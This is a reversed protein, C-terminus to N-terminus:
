DRAIRRARRALIDDVPWCNLIQEPVLWARRAAMVGFLMNGLGDASHADSNITIVVGAGAARKALPADLDLRHYDANIELATETRAAEAFILDFDLDMPERHLPMRGTPHAIIDVYPNAIAALTRATVVGRDGRQGSHVSAIAYDLAALAAEDLDLHGDSHVEIECARLIRLGTAAAAVEEAQQRLREADLGNAIRLSYSHDSVGYYQYGRARAAAAMEAVSASGDSWVTHTHLDGRIDGITVLRPVGGALMRELADAGERLEPPIFPLDLAAFAAQEDGEVFAEGRRLGKADLTM